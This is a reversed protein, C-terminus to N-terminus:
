IGSTKIVEDAYPILDAWSEYACNAWAKVISAHGDRNSQFVDKVTIEFDSSHPPLAEFLQSSLIKLAKTAESHSKGYAFILHLSTFHMRVSQYARREDKLGPHQLAYADVTLRHSGAFLNQDQYERALVQGYHAWCAASSLMYNHIVGNTSEFLEGCGICKTEM